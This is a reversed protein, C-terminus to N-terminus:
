NGSSKLRKSLAQQSIGLLRAAATQNGDSRRLAEEVLLHTAQKLTPLYSTFNILKDGHGPDPANAMRAPNQNLYSELVRPSLTTSGTRSVADFIMMRLERINGPFSYKELLTLLAKPAQLGPKGFQQAAEKLFHDVLLPLDDLRERLPPIHLHHTRLRFNLDKRFKEEKALQWLDRNTASVVRADSHKPTDSGLPFYDSSQLLRLLKSQSVATLDGIEDLFLTGGNAQEILGKRVREAGTFAGKLHGFLTDSFVADDLGAVNVAVLSGQRHSLAHIAQALLDKGVGTEGTILVPEATAAISEVYRFIQFIKTNRTIIGTFVEPRSPGASSTSQRLAQNEQQLEQLALANKVITFLREFDIPKTLYNFAGAQICRVATDVEETATLIIVLIEPYDRSLAALLEEGGLHPMVLDLLIIGVAHQAVQEMVQRSDMCTMINNLGAKRLAACTITLSITDDDVVLVPNVPYVAPKM